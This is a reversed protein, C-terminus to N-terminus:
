STVKVKQEEERAKLIAVVQIHMAPLKNLASKRVDLMTSSHRKIYDSM